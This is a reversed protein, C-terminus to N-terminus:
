LYNSYDSSTSNDNIARVHKEHMTAGQTILLSLQKRRGTSRKSYLYQDDYVVTVDHVRLSSNLLADDANLYKRSALLIINKYRIVLVKTQNKAGSTAM